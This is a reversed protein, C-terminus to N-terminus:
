LLAGYSGEQQLLDLPSGNETDLNVVACENRHPMNPLADRM